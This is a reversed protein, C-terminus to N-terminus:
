INNHIWTNPVGCRTAKSAQDAFKGEINGVDYDCVVMKGGAKGQPMPETCPIFACGLKKTDKWVLQTYHGVELFNSPSLKGPPPTNYVSCEDYWKQVADGGSANDFPFYKGNEFKLGYATYLNQGTTGPVFINKEAETGHIGTGPHRYDSCKFDTQKALYNAWDEAKKKLADDWVLPELGNEIRVKNHYGLIKSEFESLGPQSPHEVVVNATDSSSNLSVTAPVASPVPGSQSQVPKPVESSVSFWNGM